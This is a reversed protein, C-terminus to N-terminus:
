PVSDQDSLLLYCLGFPSVIHVMADEDSDRYLRIFAM